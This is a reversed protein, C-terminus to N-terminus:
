GGVMASRIIGAIAGAVAIGVMIGLIPALDNFITTVTSPLSSVIVAWPNM